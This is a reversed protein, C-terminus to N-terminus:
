IKHTQKKNIDIKYEYEEGLANNATCNFLTQIDNLIYDIHVNPNGLKVKIMNLEELNLQRTFNLAKDSAWMNRHTKKVSIINSTDTANNTNHRQNNCKISWTVRCHKDSFIADFDHVLFNEIKCVIVPSAIMYDLLSGDSTTAKGSLDSNMRGNCIFLNNTKCFEILQIGHSNLRRQDM